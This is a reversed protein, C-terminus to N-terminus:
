CIRPLQTGALMDIIRKGGAQTELTVRGPHSDTIEGIISAREGLPHRKMKKLVEDAKSSSVALILKGENAVYIPDFGLFECLGKVNEDIPIALEDINIGFKTKQALEVLVTGLGGRTADRM